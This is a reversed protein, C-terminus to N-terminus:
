EGTKYGDAANKKEELLLSIQTCTAEIDLFADIYVHTGINYIVLCVFYLNVNTAHAHQM